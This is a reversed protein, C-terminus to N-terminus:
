QLEVQLLNLYFFNCKSIPKDKNNMIEGDKSITSIKGNFKEKFSVM